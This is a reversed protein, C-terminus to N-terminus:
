DQSSLLAACVRAVASLLCHRGFVFTESLKCAQTFCVRVIQGLGVSDRLLNVGDGEGSRAGSDSCMTQDSTSGPKHGLRGARTGTVPNSASHCWDVCSIIVVVVVCGRSMGTIISTLHM